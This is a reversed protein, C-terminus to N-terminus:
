AEAVRRAVAQLVALAGRPGQVVVDAREVLQRPSEEDAAAMRVVAVGRGALRDLASFAALDGADDGAFCVAHRGEGLEEVVTGKDLGVPPQLEVVQRGGLLALGTRGACEEAFRRAWRATGPARRWHLAVSIGKDEVELGAPAQARAAELVESVVPLWPAIAPARHVVGDEIWEAGYGGYLRVAPGTPALLRDALFSAPRGSIVAVVAFREALACLVGPFGALPRADEPDPVIPALTGDFDTLVASAPPDELLVAMPPPLAGGDDEAM